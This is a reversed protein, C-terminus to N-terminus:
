IWFPQVLISCWRFSKARLFYLKQGLCRGIFLEISMVVLFLIRSNANAGYCVINVNGNPSINKHYLDLNVRSPNEKHICTYIGISYNFDNISHYRLCKRFQRTLECNQNGYIFKTKTRLIQQFSLVIDMFRLQNNETDQDSILTFNPKSLCLTCIPHCSATLYIKYIKIKFTSAAQYNLISLLHATM